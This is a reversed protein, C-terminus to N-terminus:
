PNTRLDRLYARGSLDSDDRKLAYNPDLPEWDCRSESERSTWLMQANLLASLRKSVREVELGEERRAWHPKVRRVLPWARGLSTGLSLEFVAGGRRGVAEGGAAGVTERFTNYDAVSM